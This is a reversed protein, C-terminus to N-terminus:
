GHGREAARGFLGLRGAISPPPVLGGGEDIRLELVGALRDFPRDL